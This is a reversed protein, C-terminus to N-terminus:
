FQDSHSLRLSSYKCENEHSFALCTDPKKKTGLLKNSKFRGFEGKASMTLYTAQSFLNNFM